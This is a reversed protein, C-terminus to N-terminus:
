RKMIFIQKKVFWKELMEAIRDEYSSIFYEELDIDYFARYVHFGESRRSNNFWTGEHYGAHRNDIKFSLDTRTKNTTTKCAKLSDFQSLKVGRKKGDTGISQIKKEKYKSVFEEIFDVHASDFVKMSTLDVRDLLIQLFFCFNKAYQEKRKPDNEFRQISNNGDDPSSIPKLHLYDVAFPHM